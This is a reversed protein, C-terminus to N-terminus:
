RFLGGDPTDRLTCQHEMGALKAEMDMLAEVLLEERTYPTHSLSTFSKAQAELKELATQARKPITIDSM